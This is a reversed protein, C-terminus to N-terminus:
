NVKFSTVGCATHVDEKLYRMGHLWMVPLSMKRLSSSVWAQRQFLWTVVEAAHTLVSM